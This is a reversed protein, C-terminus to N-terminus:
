AARATMGYVRTIDAFATQLLLVLAPLSMAMTAAVEVAPAGAVAVLHASRHWPSAKGALVCEVKAVRRRAAVRPLNLPRPGADPSRGRARPANGPRPLRPAAEIVDAAWAVAAKAEVASIVGGDVLARLSANV